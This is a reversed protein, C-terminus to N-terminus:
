GATRPTSLWISAPGNARHAAGVSHCIRSVPTVFGPEGQRATATKFVQPKRRLLLQSAAAGFAAANEMSPPWRSRNVKRVGVRRRSARAAGAERAPGNVDANLQRKHYIGDPLRNIYTPDDIQDIQLVDGAQIGSADAVTIQRAGKAADATVDIAPSYSPWFRPRRVSDRKTATSSDLRIHTKDPGAGRLVLNSSFLGIAGTIRYTVTQCSCLRVTTTPRWQAPLRLRKTSSRRLRRWATAYTAANIDCFDDHGEPRWGPIGPNWITRRNVRILGGPDPSNGTTTASASREPSPRSPHPHAPEAPVVRGLWDRHDRRPNRLSDQSKRSRTARNGELDLAIEQGDQSPRGCGGQLLAKM